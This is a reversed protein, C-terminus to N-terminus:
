SRVRSTPCPEGRLNAPAYVDLIRRMNAAAMVETDPGLMAATATDAFAGLGDEGDAEIMLLLGPLRDAGRLDARASGSMGSVAASVLDPDAAFLRCRVNRGPDIRSAMSAIGAQPLLRPSAFAILRVWEGDGSGLDLLPRGIIRLVNRFRPIFIRSRPDPERRMVRYAPDSFVVASAAEYLAVYKPGGNVAVFRRGRVFGPIRLVRDPVHERDYWENFAPEIEAPIDTWLFQAVAEDTAAASRTRTM